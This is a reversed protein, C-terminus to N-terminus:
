DYKNNNIIRKIAALYSFKNEIDPELYAGEAWENWANLFIFDINKDKANKYHIDFYKEFIDPRSDPM